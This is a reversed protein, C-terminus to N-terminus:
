SIEVPKRSVRDGLPEKNLPLDPYPGMTFIIVAGAAVLIAGCVLAYNYSAFRDYSWGALYAGIAMGIHMASYMVGFIRGYAVRGFYQACMFALADGEAGLAVGLLFACAVAGVISVDFSLGFLGIAACAIFLAAVSPAHFRDMLAGTTARSAILALGTVSAIFGSASASIGKEIVIPVLHVFAGQGLPLLVFAGLLKRFAPTRLSQAFTYGHNAVRALEERAVRDPRIGDVWSGVEEPSDRLVIFYAPLILLLNVTGLVVYAMRWGAAEAIFHILPPNVMAAIGAGGAIIGLALGKQKEFWFVALRSYVFGATGAGAVPLLLYIAYFYRISNGMFYMSCLLVGLATTSFLMLRRPGFRDILLGVIPACGIMMLTALTLAFSVSARSWGFEQTLSPILASFSYITVGAYGFCHGITAVLVIRWGYFKPKALELKM